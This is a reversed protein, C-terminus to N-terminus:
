KNCIKENNMLWRLRLKNLTKKSYDIQVFEELELWILHLLNRAHNKRQQKWEKNGSISYLNYQIMKEYLKKDYIEKKKLYKGNRKFLFYTDGMKIKGEYEVDKKEVLIDHSMFSFMLEEEELVRLLIVGAEDYGMIIGDGILERIRKKVEDM